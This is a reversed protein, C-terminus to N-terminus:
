FDLTVILQDLYTGAAVDQQPFVRGFVPVTVVKNNPQAKASYIETGSTGDGWIRTRTGDLYLNYNLRDIGARMYRDFRGSMGTSLTIQVVLSGRPDQRVTRPVASVSAKNGCRYSIRGQVDLPADEVPDYVGFAMINVSELTCTKDGRPQAQASAIAGLCAAVFAIRCGAAIVAPM